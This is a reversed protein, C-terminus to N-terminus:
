GLNHYYKYNPVPNHYNRKHWEHHHRVNYHLLMPLLWQLVLEFLSSELWWSNHQMSNCQLSRSNIYDYNRKSKQKNHKCHTSVTPVICLVVAQVRGALRRRFSLV